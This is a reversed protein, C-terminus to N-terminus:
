IEIGSFSEDIRPLAKDRDSVGACPLPWDVSIKEDDYRIGGEHDSSYAATHLYILESEPELAQFGHACGEPVILMKTSEPTLIEGHWRLFTKSGKRLDVAVDFVKGSLCRIMKMEAYPKSQYHLGRIMGVERTRSFNMQVIERNGIVEALENRCFMRFFRGRMDEFIDSTIVNVGAIETTQINM